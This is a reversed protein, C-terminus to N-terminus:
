TQVNYWHGLDKNIFDELNKINYELQHKSKSDLNINRKYATVNSPATDVLVENLGVYKTIGNVFEQPNYELDDYFLVKLKESQWRKLIGVYDLSQTISQFYEADENTSAHFNYMSNAYSYPNRLIITIYSAYKKIFEIQDYDLSWLNPNFNLSFSYASFYLKYTDVNSLLSVAPEKEGQYDIQDSKILNNYLWTTGTKATGLNVYHIM